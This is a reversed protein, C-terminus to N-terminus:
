QPVSDRVGNGLAIHKSPFHFFFFFVAEDNILNIIMVVPLYKKGFYELPHIVEGSNPGRNSALTTQSRDFRILHTLISESGVNM